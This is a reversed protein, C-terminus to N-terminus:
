SVPLASTTSQLLCLQHHVQQALQNDRMFQMLAANLLASWWAPELNALDELGVTFRVHESVLCGVGEEWSAMDDDNFAGLTLWALSAAVQRCEPPDLRQVSLVVDHEGIRVVSQNWM